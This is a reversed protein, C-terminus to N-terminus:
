SSSVFRGWLGKFVKLATGIIFIWMFGVLAVLFSVFMFGRSNSGNVGRRRQQVVVSTTQQVQVACQQTGVQERKFSSVRQFAKTILAGGESAFAPSNPVSDLFSALTSGFWTEPDGGSHSTQPQMNPDSGLHVHGSLPTTRIAQSAHALSSMSADHGLTTWLGNSPDFDQNLMSADFYDEISLESIVGDHLPQQQQQLEALMQPADFYTMDFVDDPAGPADVNGNNPIVEDMSQMISELEPFDNIELFEEVGNISTSPPKAAVANINGSWAREQSFHSANVDVCSPMGNHVRSDAETFVSVESNEAPQIQTFDSQEFNSGAGVNRFGCEFQSNMELQEFGCWTSGESFSVVEVSPPMSQNVRDSVAADIESVQQNDKENTIQLLLSELDDLPLNNSGEHSPGASSANLARDSSQVINERPAAIDDAEEEWEEERFTAGYQEGNKPGAGSKKFVKYLAYSDNACNVLSQDEFTYEYMVWDTRDGKPARGHYYVLTKKNGLAKSNHSITRDKGTAKWYGNGTSRNSRTGNPYKRDRPSFFFWQKDGSKLMSKHPLDWPESKYVDVDAIMPLPLRRGSVKRKLYYFVLEEDTPSFRFGPPWRGGM